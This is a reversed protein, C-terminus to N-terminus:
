NANVTRFLLPSLPNRESTTNDLSDVQIAYFVSRGLLVLDPVIVDDIVDQTLELAILIM